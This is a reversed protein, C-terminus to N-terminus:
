VPADTRSGVSSRPQFRLWPGFQPVPLTRFSGALLWEETGVAVAGTTSEVHAKALRM